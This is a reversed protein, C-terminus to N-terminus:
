VAKLVHADNINSVTMEKKVLSILSDFLQNQTLEEANRVFWEAGSCNELLVRDVESHNEYYAYLKKLVRVYKASFVKGKDSEINNWKLMCLLNLIKELTDPNKKCIGIGETLPTFVGIPNKLCEDGKIQVNYKHCIDRFAIYEKIEVEFSANLYDHPRMQNRDNTQNLFLEIAEKEEIDLIEVVVGSINGIYAGIIRHMGDVCELVGNNYIVKPVEWKNKDYHLGIKEARVIDLRRQWKPIHIYMPPVVVLSKDGIRGNRKATEVINAMAIKETKGTFGERERAIQVMAETETTTYFRKKM